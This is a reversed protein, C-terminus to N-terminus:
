AARRKVIDRKEDDMIQTYIQTTAVSSHGLLEQVIRLNSGDVRLWETAALHRLPHATGEGQMARSILKSAYAASMHGDIRGPILYGEADLIIQALGDSIPVTRQKRGKGHVLLSYRGPAGLVDNSHVKVM